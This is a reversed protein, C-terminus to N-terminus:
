SRKTGGEQNRGAEGGHHKAGKSERRWCNHVREFERFRRTIACGDLSSINDGGRKVSQCIETLKRGRPAKEWGYSGVAGGELRM